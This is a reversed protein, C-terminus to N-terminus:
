GVALAHWQGIFCTGCGFVTVCYPKCLDIVVTIPSLGTSTPVSATVASPDVVIPYACFTLFNCKHQISSLDILWEFLYGKVELVVINEPVGSDSVAPVATLVAGFVVYLTACGSVCGESTKVSAWGCAEISPYTVTAFAPMVLLSLMAFLPILVLLAKRNM